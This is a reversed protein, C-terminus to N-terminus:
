VEAQPRYLKEALEDAITFIGLSRPERVSPGHFDSGGTALLHYQEAMQLYRKNDAEDHLPYYAEIGEMGMQLLKVVLGDDEILKPHALVPVGGAEKILNIIEQPEMRYHSVYAPKGKALVKDFVDSVSPFFGKNVLVRAVHSRSISQSDGALQLVETEKVDYGLGNLKVIMESFRTWRAEVIDNLKDMLGRHFIDIDYGLIHVERAPDHASFEIGPIIRIGRAPYIGTEYLHSIGGVTDHDTIAIYRLGAKKAEEVIKEPTFQGDSFTTHIHLDSSMFATRGKMCVLEEEAKDLRCAQHWDTEM